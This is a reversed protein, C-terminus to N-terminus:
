QTVSRSSQLRGQLTYLARKEANQSLLNSMDLQKGDIQAQKQRAFLRTEIQAAGLEIQAKQFNNNAIQVGVKATQLGIAEKQTETALKQTVIMEKNYLIQAQNIKLRSAITKTKEAQLLNNSQTYKEKLIDLNNQRIKGEIQEASVTYRAPQLYDM